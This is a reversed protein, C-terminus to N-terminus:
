KKQAALMITRGRSAFYPARQFIRYAMVGFGRLARLRSLFPFITTSSEVSFGAREVTVRLEQPAFVHTHDADAFHAPDPYRANPTALAIHGNPRLLRKWEVLATEVDPLHEVAHQAIIADFSADHFPLTNDEGVHILSLSVLHSPSVSISEKDGQRRTKANNELRDKALNLAVNLTDVGVVNAGRERLMRLLGGGGCGIELVRTNQGICVHAILWNAEIRWDRWSERAAFYDSTYSM